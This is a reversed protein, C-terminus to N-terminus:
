ALVARLREIAPGIQADIRCAGVDVICGGREVTPDAVVEAAATWGVPEAAIAERVSDDDDPHVRLTPAGRDPLLGAARRLADLVPQETTALERGIIETALAVALDVAERELETIGVRDRRELGDAAAEVATSARAFRDAARRHDAIALEIHEAAAALGDEYGDRYGEDRMRAIRETIEDRRDRVAALPPLVPIQFSTFPQTRPTTSM